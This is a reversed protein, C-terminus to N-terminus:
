PADKRGFLPKRKWEGCWGRLPPFLWEVKRSEWHEPEAHVLTPPFRQCVDRTIQMGGGRTFETQKGAFRCTGCIRSPFASRWFGLWAWRARQMHTLRRPSRWDHGVGFIKDPDTESM